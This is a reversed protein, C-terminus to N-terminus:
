YENDNEEVFEKIADINELILEAKGVGFKFPYADYEDKMLVIMPHGKFEEYKVTM